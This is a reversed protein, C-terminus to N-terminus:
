ARSCARAMQFLPHFKGSCAKVVEQGVIGGFMAAMPSVEAAAGGAMKRLVGEDYSDVRMGAPSSANLEKFLAVFRDADEASAPAPWCGGSEARFKDLARFALHLVPPREFKAFDSLLFEGADVTLSERLTRFRLTKPQKVQTVLGGIEYAGYRSTDDEIQFSHARVNKVRRPRGDNLETMGKVESFLVLDGDLFELREDDVCTVLADGESNEVSAVIGAHADEGDTDVVTFEPGFDCFVAGFVGRIEARIFAVAPEQRHCFEDFEVAKDLPLDTFVVVQFNALFSEQIEETVVSVSVAKNLEALKAACAAARNSGVDTETLYFQSSLDAITVVETDHLTVSKVGALIVNKATEVGLGKLGSILVNAGLLWGYSIDAASKTAFAKWTQAATAIPFMLTGIFGIIQYGDDFVM